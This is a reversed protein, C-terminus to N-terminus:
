RAVLWDDDAVQLPSQWTFQVHLYTFSIEEHLALHVSKSSARTYPQVMRVACVQANFLQITYAHKSVGLPTVQYYRLEVETLNEMTALARRIGLSAVSVERRLSLPKHYRKTTTLGTAPSRPVVIQHNVRLVRCEAEPRGTGPGLLLGQREGVIM